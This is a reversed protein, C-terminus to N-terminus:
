HGHPQLNSEQSRETPLPDPMAMHQPTPQLHLESRANSHHLSAATVEIQGRAQSGGYATPVARFFGFFFFFFTLSNRNHHNTLFGVAAAQTATSNHTIDRARHLPNFSRANAHSPNLGQSPFKGISHTHGYFYFQPLLTHRPNPDLDKSRQRKSLVQLFKFYLRM